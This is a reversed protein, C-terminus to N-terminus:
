LLRSVDANGKREILWGIGALLAVIAAAGLPLVILIQDRPAFRDAVGYLNWHGPLRSGQPIMAFGFVTATLLAAALPINLRNFLKSMEEREQDERQAVVPSRVPCRRPDVPQPSLHHENREAGDHRSRRGQAQRFPGVHDTQHPRLSSGARRCEDTGEEPA